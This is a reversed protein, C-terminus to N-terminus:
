KVYLTGLTGLTVGQDLGVLIVLQDKVERQDLSDQGVRCWYVYMYCTNIVPIYIVPIVYLLEKPEMQDRLELQDEEEELVLDEQCDRVVELDKSVRDVIFM